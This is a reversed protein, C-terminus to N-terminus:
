RYYNEVVVSREDHHSGGGFYHNMGLKERENELLISVQPIEISGPHCKKDAIQGDVITARRINYMKVINARHEYIVQNNTLIAHLLRMNDDTIM